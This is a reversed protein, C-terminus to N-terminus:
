RDKSLDMMDTSGRDTRTHRQDLTPREGFEVRGALERHLSILEPPTVDGKSPRIELEAAAFLDIVGALEPDSYLAPSEGARWLAALEQSRAFGSAASRDSARTTTPRAPASAGRGEIEARTIAALRYRLLRSDPTDTPSPIQQRSLIAILEGTGAGRAVRRWDALARTESQLDPQQFLVYREFLPNDEVHAPLPARQGLAAARTFAIMEGTAKFAQVQQDRSQEVAGVLRDVGIELGASLERQGDEINQHVQETLGNLSGIAEKQQDTEEVIRDLVPAILSLWKHTADDGEIVRALIAEQFPILDVLPAIGADVADLRREIERQSEEIRVNSSALSAVEGRLLSVADMIAALAVSSADVSM